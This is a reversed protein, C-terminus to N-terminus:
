LAKPTEGHLLKEIKMYSAVFDSKFLKLSPPQFTYPKQKKLFCRLGSKTTIIKM